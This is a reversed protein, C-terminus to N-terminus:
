HMRASRWANWLTVAAIIPHRVCFRKVCGVGTYTIRDGRSKKASYKAAMERFQEVQAALATTRDPGRPLDSILTQLIQFRDFLGQGHARNVATAAKPHVRFMGLNEKLYYWDTVRLLRVWYEADLSQPMQEHFPGVEEMIERRIVVFDPEGILNPRLGRVIWERLFKRGDHIGAPLNHEKMHALESYDGSTQIDGEIQYRHGMSVFGIHPHDLLVDAARKLYQPEWTDDQFLYAVLESSSNRLCANWNRGIGLREPSRLFRLREDNLFPEVIAHTDTTSCDDHVLARWRPYTQHILGELAARLHAPDPNYTPILVSITPLEM